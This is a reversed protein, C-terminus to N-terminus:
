WYEFWSEHILQQAVFLMIEITNIVTNNIHKKNNDNKSLTDIIYFM